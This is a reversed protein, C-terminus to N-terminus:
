LRLAPRLRAQGILIRLMKAPGRLQWQLPGSAELREGALWLTV